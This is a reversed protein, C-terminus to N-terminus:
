LTSGQIRGEGGVLGRWCSWDLVCGSRWENMWGRSWAVFDLVLHNLPRLVYSFGPGETRMLELVGCGGPGSNVGGQEVDFSGM